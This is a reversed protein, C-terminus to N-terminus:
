KQDWYQSHIQDRLLVEIMCRTDKLLTKTIPDVSSANRVPLHLRPTPAPDDGMCARYANDVVQVDVVYM